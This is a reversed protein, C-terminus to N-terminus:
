MPPAMIIEMLVSAVGIRRAIFATNGSPARFGVSAHGSNDMPAFVHRRTVLDHIGFRTFVYRLNPSQSARTTESTPPNSTALVADFGPTRLNRLENLWVDRANPDLFVSLSGVTSEALISGTVTDLVYTGVSNVAVLERDNRGPRMVVDRVAGAFDGIVDCAGTALAIRIVFGRAMGDYGPVYAFHSTSDFAVRFSWPSIPCPEGVATMSPLQFVRLTQNNGLSVAVRENPAARISQCNLGTSAPSYDASPNVYPYQYTRLVGNTPQTILVDGEAIGCPYDPITGTERVVTPGRAYTVTEPQGGVLVTVEIDASLPDMPMMVDISSPTSAVVTAPRGGVRVTDLVFAPPDDFNAGLITFTQNEFVIGPNVDTIAVAGDDVALTFPPSARGARRLTIPVAGTVGIPVQVEVVTNSVSSAMATVTGFDVTVPDTVSAGSLGSGFITIYAGTPVPNPIVQAIVPDSVVTLVGPATVLGPAGYKVVQPGDLVSAPVTIVRADSSMGTIAVSEDGIRVDTLTELDTGYLTVTDGRSVTTPSFSTIVPGPPITLSGPAIISEAGVFHVVLAGDVASPPVIVEFVGEDGRVARAFDGGAFEVGVVGLLNAGTFTLPLGRGQTTPLFRAISPAGGPTIPTGDRDCPDGIGDGDEDGAQGMTALLPCNDEPDVITDGDTDATTPSTIWGDRGAAREEVNALGDGDIDPDDEDALGDGDHDFCRFADADYEDEDEDDLCGDGDDDDDEADVTGDADFDGERTAGLVIPALGLVGDATVVVNAIEVDRHGAKSFRARYVGAPLKTAFKGEADSRTTVRDGASATTTESIFLCEVGDDEGSTVAVRGAVDYVVTPDVPYLTLDTLQSTIGVNLETGEIRAPIYGARYAAIEYPGPPIGGVTYRDDRGVVGSYASAALVVITGEAAGAATVNSLAIAGEIEALGGLRVFGLDVSQGQAQIRVGGVRRALPAVAGRARVEFVLDYVGLPLRSLEFKGDVDTTVSWSTGLATVRAGVVEELAGTERGRSVVTGTIFGGEEVPLPAVSRICGLSVLLGAALILRNM